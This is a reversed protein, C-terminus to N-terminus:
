TPLDVHALQTRSSVGLKVFVKRLHYEVTSTTIYLQAAIDRNKEGAAALRAIQAEQPTLLDVRASRSRVQAGTAALEARARAAFGDAGIRDFVELADALAGRAEKRRRARRLWEGHLLRTRATETAITTASLDEIAEQFLADAEDGDALLARSRTLLGCTWPTGSARAREALRDSAQEALGLDGARVGAEVVDALTLSAVAISDYELSKRVSRLAEDYRGAGIDLIGLASYAQAIALGHGREHADQMMQRAGKRTADEDGRWADVLVAAAPPTGLLGREGTLSAVSESEALHSAATGLRGQLVELWSRLSLALPLAALAGTARALHSWARTLEDWARDELLDAAALVSDFYVVHLHRGALDRLRAHDNAMASLARQLEPVAAPDGSLRTALGCVLPAIPEALGCRDVVSQIGAAVSGRTGADVLHGGALVSATGAVCAGAAVEVEDCGVTSLVQALLAAAECPEGGVLHLLAQTWTADTEHDPGLGRERARRLLHGAELGRGATLEGRAAELLRAVARDRDPTLEAARWLYFAAAASGGRHRAREASAVLEQAVLEDPAAAAAGLHWARRDADEENDLAGALAAHARRRDSASASYYV